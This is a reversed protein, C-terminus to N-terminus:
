RRECIGLDIFLAPIRVSALGAPGSVGWVDQTEPPILGPGFLPQLPARCFLIQPGPACWAATLCCRGQTLLIPCSSSCLDREVEAMTHNQLVAPSETINCTELVGIKSRCKEELVWLPEKSAKWIVVSKGGTHICTRFATFSCM